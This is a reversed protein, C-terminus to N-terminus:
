EANDEEEEVLIEIQEQILELTLRTLEDDIYEIYSETELRLVFLREKKNM